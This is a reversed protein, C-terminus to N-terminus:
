EGDSDTFYVIEDGGVSSENESVGGDETHIDEAAPLPLPLPPDDGIGSSSQEKEELDREMDMMPLPSNMATSSTTSLNSLRRYLNDGGARGIPLLVNLKEEEERENEDPDNEFASSDM